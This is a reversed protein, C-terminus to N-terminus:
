FQPLFFTREQDNDAIRDAAKVFPAWILCDIVGIFLVLVIARWDYNTALFANFLPPVIVPVYVQVPNVLGLLSIWYAISSNILPVLLFPIVYVPNLVIPLGLLVPDNINFISPALAVKALTKADNRRSLALIMILLPLTSGVGGLWVFVSFSDKAWLFPVHKDLHAAIINANQPTLWIADLVPTFVSLGNIGFFWFADVLFTVLLVMGFGQGMKTLPAQIVNLLLDGFYTRTVAHFAYNITGVSYIAILAPVLSDFAVQEAHPMTSSLHISFRARYCILYISTGIAGFIMATFLGTTSFQKIDFVESIVKSKGAINITAYNAVSLAFSALSVIAGALRNGEYSKALQYGWALAFFLAFLSFSGRWVLDSISVLPQMLMAFTKWGLQAKAAAILSSILVSLSGALTIPMLSVFADRLAVLWKIRAVRSALPLITKEFISLFRQM